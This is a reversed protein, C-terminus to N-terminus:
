HFSVYDSPWTVMILADSLTQSGALTEYYRIRRPRFVRASRRISEDRVELCLPPRSVRESRQRDEVDRGKIM